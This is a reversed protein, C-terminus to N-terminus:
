SFIFDQGLSWLLMYSSSRLYFRGPVQCHVKGMVLPRAYNHSFTLLYELAEETQVSSTDELLNEFALVYQAPITGVCLTEKLVDGLM